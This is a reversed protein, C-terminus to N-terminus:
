KCPGITKNPSFFFSIFFPIQLIKREFEVSQSYVTIDPFFFINVRARTERTCGEATRRNKKVKARTLCGCGIIIVLRVIGGEVAIKYSFRINYAVDYKRSTYFRYGFAFTLSFKIKM